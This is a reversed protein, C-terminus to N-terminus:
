TKNSSTFQFDDKPYLIVKLAAGLVILACGIYTSPPITVQWMWHDLFFSFVVSLFLFIAGLRAPIYRTGLTSTIQYAFGWIGILLMWALDLLSLAGWTKQFSFLSFLFALLLNIVFVYFMLRNSTESYHGLRLSVLAVAGSIGSLLALLSAPQFLGHRPDLAIVIGVFSIGIGWWLVKPMVVKHWLFAVLPIFIPATNFLLTANSLPLFNLSLFYFFVACFNAIGRCLHIKVHHTSLQQKLPQKQALLWPLLLLLSVANRWVIIAETTQSSGVEKVTAGMLAFCLAALIFFFIGKAVQKPPRNHLEKQLEM